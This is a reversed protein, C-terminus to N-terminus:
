KEHIYCLVRRNNKIYGAVLSFGVLLCATGMPKAIFHISNYFFFGYLMYLAAAIRRTKAGYTKKEYEDLQRNGTEVPSLLFIVLLNVTQIFICVTNSIDMERISWLSLVVIIFSIIYCRVQSDAHYGGAYRRVACFSILFVVSQLFVGLIWGAALTVAIGACIVKGRAIGYTIIENKEEESM